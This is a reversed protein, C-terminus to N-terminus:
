AGFLKIGQKQRKHEARLRRADKPDITLDRYIEIRDNDDVKDSLDMIEGFIGIKQRHLDIEPFDQLVGSEEIAQKISPSKDFELRYQKQKDKATYVVRIIM